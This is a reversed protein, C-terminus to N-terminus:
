GSETHGKVQGELRDLRLAYFLGHPVFETNQRGHQVRDSHRTGGHKHQLPASSKAKFRIRALRAALLTAERM